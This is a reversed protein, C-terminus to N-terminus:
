IDVACACAHQCWCVSWRHLSVCTKYHMPFVLSFVGTAFLLRCGGTIAASTLLTSLCQRLLRGGGALKRYALGSAFM